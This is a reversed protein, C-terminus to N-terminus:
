GRRQAALVERPTVIAPVRDIRTQCGWSNVIAGTRSIQLTHVWVKLGNAEGWYLANKGCVVCQEVTRMIKQHIVQRGIPLASAYFKTSTM